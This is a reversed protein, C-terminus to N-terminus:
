FEVRHLRAPTPEASATSPCCYAEVNDELVTEVAAVRLKEAQAKAPRQIAQQARMKEYAVVPVVELGGIDGRLNLEAEPM